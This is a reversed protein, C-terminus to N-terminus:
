KTVEEEVTIAGKLLQTVIGGASVLELDYVGASFTLAATTVADIVLSITKATNDLTIRSDPGPPNTNLSLLITTSETTDRIQMRATYGTLDQPTNYQVYGGSSWTHFESSNVDNLEITSSTLVKADHYDLDQPPANKANIEYMSTRPISVIAVRWGDPAGHGVATVVAPAAKTIGTIAKYVIPGTEWRLVRSFTKGKQLVFDSSPCTM